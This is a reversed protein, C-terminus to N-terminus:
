GLYFVAYRLVSASADLFACLVAAQVTMKLITVRTSGTRDCRSMVPDAVTVRACSVGSSRVTDGM